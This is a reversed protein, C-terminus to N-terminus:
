GQLSRLSKLTVQTAELDSLPIAELEIYYNGSNAGGSADNINVFIDQNVIENDFIVTNAFNYSTSQVDHYLAVALLNGKTFDVTSTISVTQDTKYIQGVLETNSQGPVANMIQFKKIKYGVKGKITKLRIRDQLGDPLQGRYSLTKTM